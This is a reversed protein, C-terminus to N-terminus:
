ELRAPRNFVNLLDTRASKLQSSQWMCRMSLTAGSSSINIEIIQWLSRLLLAWRSAAFNMHASPWWSDHDWSSMILHDHCPIGHDNAIVWIIILSWYKGGTDAYRLQRHLRIWSRVLHIWFILNFFAFLFLIAVTLLSIKKHPIEWPM